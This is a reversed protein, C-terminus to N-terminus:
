ICIIIRISYNYQKNISLKYQFTINQYLFFHIVFSKRYVATYYNKLLYQINHLLYSYRTNIIEIRIVNLKPIMFM